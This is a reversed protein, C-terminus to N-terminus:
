FVPTPAFTPGIRQEGYFFPLSGQGAGGVLRFSVPITAFTPVPSGDLRDVVFTWNSIAELAARDLLKHGSSSTLTMEGAHGDPQIEVIVLVEGEQYRSLALRPYVPAPADLYRPGAGAYQIEFSHGGEPAPRGRVDIYLHTSLSVARGELMAPTFTWDAVAAQVRALLRADLRSPLLKVREVRGEADIDVEALLTAALPAHRESWAAFLARAIMDMTKGGGSRAAYYGRGLYADARVAASYWDIAQEKRDLGWLAYAYHKPLWIASPLSQGAQHWEALTCAFDEDLACVHGKAWHWRRTLVADDPPILARAKDLESGAVGTRGGQMALVALEIRAAAQTEGSEALRKLSKRRDYDNENPDRPVAPSLAPDKADFVQTPSPTALCDALAQGECDPTQAALPNALLAVLLWELPFRYQM